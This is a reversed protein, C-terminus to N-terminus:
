PKRGERGKLKMLHRQLAVLGSGPRPAAHECTYWLMADLRKLNAEYYDPAQLEQKKLTKLAVAAQQWSQVWRRAHQATDSM